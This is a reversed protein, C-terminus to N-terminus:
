FTAMPMLVYVGIKDVPLAPTVAYRIGKADSAERVRRHDALLEEARGQAINAFEAELGPIAGLAQEILRIQQGPEMNRGLELSMMALADAETLIEPQASGRVAVALCEESLLSKGPMFRGELDRTEVTLQSRLRLLYVTTRTDVAKTFIAGCRAGIEPRDADLAEEAVHEALTAVVPHARHVHEVGVPVPYRFALKATRGLGIGELREQLPKPLHAIPFHEYGGRQELPAGLRQAALHVFGAVDEEGGFISVAKRWEPLVDDPRLRRQVFVTRTMKDKATAWATDVEDETEGFNFAIQRTATAIGGSQLLIAKMIADVVRNNDAPLPVAVGLEKRIKEAKRLIVRLVAGDVPNNEGYLMLARVVESGQGFRDVRGERQEHRTPNWTLDYHVAADFLRQLNIGESLCDTAVLVPVIGDELDHLEAM